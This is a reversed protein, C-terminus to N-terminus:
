RLSPPLPIKVPGPNWNNNGPLPKPNMPDGGVDIPELNGDDVINGDLDAQPDKWPPGTQSVRCRNPGVKYWKGGALVYDASDGPGSNQGPGVVGYGGSNWVLVPLPSWNTCCGNAIGFPGRDPQPPPAPPAPPAPKTPQTTPGSQLGNADTSDLPGSREWEYRNMGDPYNLPDQQVFRGLSPSYSM